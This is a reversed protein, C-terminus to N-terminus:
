PALSKGTNKFQLYKSLQSASFNLLKTFQDQPFTKFELTKGVPIHHNRMM